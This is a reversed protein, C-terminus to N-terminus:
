NILDLDDIFLSIITEPSINAQADSGDRRILSLDVNKLEKLAEEFNEIPQNPISDLPHINNVQINNELKNIADLLIDQQWTSSFVDKQADLNDSKIDKKANKVEDVTIEEPIYPKINLNSVAGMNVKTINMM